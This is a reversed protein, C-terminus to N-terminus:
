ALKPFDDPLVKLEQLLRIQEQNMLAFKGYDGYFICTPNQSVAKWWNLNGELYVIDKHFACGTGDTGNLVRISLQWAKDRAQEDALSINEPLHIRQWFTEIASVMAFVETFTRPKQQDLGLAYSIAFHRLVINQWFPQAVAEEHSEYVIQERLLARGENSAEYRALGQSLLRIPQRRGNIRELLHSGVEHALIGIFDERSLRYNHPRRIIPPTYLVGWFTDISDEIAYDASINKLAQRVIPDGIDPTIFPEIPLPIGAFLQEFYGDPAFHENRVRQFVEPNPMLLQQNGGMQPLLSLAKQSAEALSTRKDNQYGLAQVHLWDCVAAFIEKKPTGYIFINEKTFAEKDNHAAALLMRNNAILEDIRDSYLLRVPEKSEQDVIAQKLQFLQECHKKVAEEDVAQPRLNPNMSFNSAYFDERAEALAIPSPGLTLYIETTVGALTSLKDFWQQDLADHESILFPTM